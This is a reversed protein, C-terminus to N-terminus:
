LLYVLLCQLTSCYYQGNRDMRLPSKFICHVQFTNLKSTINAMKLSMLSKQWHLTPTYLSIVIVDLLADMLLCVVASQHKAGKAQSSLAAEGMNSIDFLKKCLRCKARGPDHDRELWVNYKDSHLWANNFRCKGP